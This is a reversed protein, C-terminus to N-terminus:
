LKHKINKVITLNKYNFKASRPILPDDIISVIKYQKTHNYAKKPFNKAKIIKNFHSIVQEKTGGLYEIFIDTSIKALNLKGTKRFYYLMSSMQMEQKHDQYYQKHDIM